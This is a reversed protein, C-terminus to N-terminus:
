RRRDRDDYSRRRDPSRSRDRRPHSHRESDRRRDTDRSRSRRKREVDRSQPRRRRHERDRHDGDRSYRAGRERDRSRSRRRRHRERSHSRRRRERRGVKEREGKLGGVEGVEASLVERGVEGDKERGSYGGFGVGVGGEGTNGEGGGEGDEDATEKIAKEVERRGAVQADAMRPAVPFGLAASLADQEAEKVRRIEDARQTLAAQAGPSTSGKAYWSLDRNRQWRGVPAMLSHGLYNERHQDDKVDEWKFEARGGRSGEKRVGAVLDM